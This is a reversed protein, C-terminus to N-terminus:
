WSTRPAHNVAVDRWPVAVLAGGRMALRSLVTWAGGRGFAARSSEAECLAAECLAAECLRSQAPLGTCGVGDTIYSM